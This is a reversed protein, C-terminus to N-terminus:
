YKNPLKEGRDSITFENNAITINDEKFINIIKEDLIGFVKQNRNDYEKMIYWNDALSVDGIFNLTATSTLTKKETVNTATDYTKNYKDLLVKLSNQTLSHWLTTEYTEEKLRKNIQKLVKQNYNTNIWILFDKTINEELNYSLINTIIEETNEKPKNESNISQSTTKKNLIVLTIIGILFIILLIIKIKKLQNKKKARKYKSRMKRKKM